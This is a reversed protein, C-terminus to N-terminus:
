TALGNWEGVFVAAASSDKTRSGASSPNKRVQVTGNKGSQMYMQCTYNAGVGSAVAVSVGSSTKMKYGNPPKIATDQFDPSTFVTSGLFKVRIDAIILGTTGLKIRYFTSETGDYSANKSTSSAVAYDLNKTLDTLKKLEDNTLQFNRRVLGTSFLESEKPLEFGFPVTIDPM